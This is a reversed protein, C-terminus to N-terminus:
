KEFIVSVVHKGTSGLNYGYILESKLWNDQHVVSKKGMRKKLPDVSAVTKRCTKHSQEGSGSNRTIQM